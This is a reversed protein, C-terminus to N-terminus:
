LAWDPRTGLPTHADVLPQHEEPPGHQRSVAGRFQLPGPAGARHAGTSLHVFVYKYM